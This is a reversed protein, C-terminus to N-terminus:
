KHWRKRRVEGSIDSTILVEPVSLYWPFLSRATSERMSGIFDLKNVFCLM